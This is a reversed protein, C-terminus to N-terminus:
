FDPNTPEKDTAEGQDFEDPEMWGTGGDDDRDGVLLYDAIMAFQQAGLAEQLADGMIEIDRTRVVNFAGRIAAKLEDVKQRREEDTPAQYEKKEPYTRDIIWNGNPMEKKEMFTRLQKRMNAVTRESAGSVKALRPKSLANPYTRVLFWAANLREIQTLPLTDKANVLLAELHAEMRTCTLLVAPVGHGNIKGAAQEARYAAVRYHGDLLIQRGTPNGTEDTEQWVLVPDLGGTNRLTKRLASLHAASDDGSRHRFTRDTTLTRHDITTATRTIDNPM